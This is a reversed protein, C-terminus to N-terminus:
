LGGGSTDHLHARAATLAEKLSPTTGESTLSAKTQGRRLFGNSSGGSRGREPSPPQPLALAAGESPRSQVLDGPGLGPGLLLGGQNRPQIIEPLPPISITSGGKRGKVKRYSEIGDETPGGLPGPPRNTKGKWPQNQNTATGAM